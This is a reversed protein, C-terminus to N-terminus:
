KDVQKKAKKAVLIKDGIIQAQESLGVRIYSKFVKESQHGTISRM